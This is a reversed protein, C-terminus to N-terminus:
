GHGNPPIFYMCCHVRYDELQSRTVHSEENLYDEYKKDIFNLIPSWSHPPDECKIWPALLVMGGEGGGWGGVLWAERRGM